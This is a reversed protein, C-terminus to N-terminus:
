LREQTTLAIQNVANDPWNLKLSRLWDRWLWFQIVVFTLTKVQKKYEVKARVEGTLPILEGTYTCLNISPDNLELDPFLDDYMKKSIITTAAGTDIEM